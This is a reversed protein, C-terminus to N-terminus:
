QAELAIAVSDALNLVAHAWHRPVVVVDGPGQVVVFHPQRSLLPPRRGEVAQASSASVHAAENVEEPAERELDGAGSATIRAAGTGNVLPCAALARAFWPLAPETSFWAAGPPLLVWLKLGALLANVAPGHFHLLAGSLPPGVALQSLRPRAGRPPRLAHPLRLGAFMGPHAEMADRDFVYPPPRSDSDANSRPRSGMMWSDMFDGLVWDTAPAGYLSPYPVPGTAVRLGGWALRVAAASVPFSANAGGEDPSESALGAATRALGGRVVFPLDVSGWSEWLAAADSVSDPGWLEPLPESTHKCLGEGRRLLRLHTLLSPALGGRELRDPSPLPGWGAAVYESESFSGPWVRGRRRTRGASIQPGSAAAGNARLWAAAASGAPGTMQAVDLPTRNYADRQQWLLASRRVSPEPDRRKISSEGLTAGPSALTDTARALVELIAIHGRAAALHACASGVGARAAEASWVSAALSPVGAGTLLFEAAPVNGSACARGLPTVLSPITLESTTTTNNEDAGKRLAVNGEAAVRTLASVLIGPRSSDAVALAGVIARLPAAATCAELEAKSVCGWKAGGHRGPIACDTVPLCRLGLARIRLARDSPATSTGHLAMRALGSALSSCARHVLSTGHHDLVNICADLDAPGLAKVLRRIAAFNSNAVAVSISACVDFASTIPDVLSAALESDFSALGDATLPTPSDVDIYENWSRLASGVPSTDAREKLPQSLAISVLTTSAVRLWIDM